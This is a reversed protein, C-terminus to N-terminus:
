SFGHLLVNGIRAALAIDLLLFGASFLVLLQFFVSSDCIEFLYFLLFLGIDWRADRVFEGYGEDSPPSLHRKRLWISVWFLAAFSILAGDKEPRFFFIGRSWRKLPLLFQM